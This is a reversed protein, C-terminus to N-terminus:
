IGCQKKEHSTLTFQLKDVDVLLPTGNRELNELYKRTQTKSQMEKDFPSFYRIVHQGRTCGSIYKFLKREWGEPVYIGTNDVEIEERSISYRTNPKGYQKLENVTMTFKLREVNVLLPTGKKELKVLYRRMGAKSPVIENLPSIYRIKHVRRMKGSKFKCLKRQWGEPVYVDTNDVDIWVVSVPLKKKVHKALDRVHIASSFNLREVDVSLPTGKKELYGLYDSVHQQCRLEKEYPSVYYIKHRGKLPGETFKFLKRQWGEPVYINTNDVDIEDRPARYRKCEKNNPKNFQLRNVDVVLPNGNEELGALYEKMQKKYRVEKDFPSIYCIVNKGKMSGSKFKFMKRQWGEPVYIGNNDIEVEERLVSCGKRHIKKGKSNEPLNHSSCTFDMKEVDLPEASVVIRKRELRKIYESVQKKNYLIKGLPSIYRVGYRGKLKGKIYQYVICHWGNPIYIGTDDVDIEITKFTNKNNLPEDTYSTSGSIDQINVNMNSYEENYIENDKSYGDMNMSNLGNEESEHIHNYYKHRDASNIEQSTHDGLHKFIDSYKSSALNCGECCFLLRRIKSGNRCEFKVGVVTNSIKTRLHSQVHAQLDDRRLINGHCVTCVFHDYYYNNPLGTKPITEKSLTQMHTSAHNFANDTGRCTYSCLKCMYLDYNISQLVIKRVDFLNDIDENKGPKSHSLMSQGTVSFNLKEIDIYKDKIHYYSYVESKCGFKKGKSNLYTIHYQKENNSNTSMTLKRQWGDPIYIAPNNNDLVLIEHFPDRKIQRISFDLQETDINAFPNEIVHDYADKKMCIRDGMETFYFLDYKLAGEFLTNRLYVKRRWGPPIYKDTNDVEVEVTHTMCEFKRERSPLSESSTKFRLDNQSPLFPINGGVVGNNRSINVNDHVSLTEERGDINDTNFIILVPIISNQFQPMLGRSTQAQNVKNDGNIQHPSFHPSIDNYQPSEVKSKKALSCSDREVIAEYISEYIQLNNIESKREYSTTTCEERKINNLKTQLSAVNNNVISDNEITNDTTFVNTISNATSHVYQHIASHQIMDSEGSCKFDCESCEFEDDKGSDINMM